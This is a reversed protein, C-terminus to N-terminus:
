REDSLYIQNSLQGTKLGLVRLREKRGDAWELEVVGGEQIGDPMADIFVKHTYSVNTGDERYRWDAKVYGGTRRQSRCDYPESMQESFSEYDGNDNMVCHNTILRLKANRLLLVPM